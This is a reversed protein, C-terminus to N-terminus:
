AFVGHLYWASSQTQRERFVWLAGATESLAVWYDRAVQRTREGEPTSVRDWWGYEVRHPGIILQLVGQYVPQSGRVSLKLPEPLVFCPQPLEAGEASAARLPQEAPQWQTMWELRHDAQLTPRLVRQPGLRAAIREMVLGLPENQRASDLLLSASQEPLTQVELAELWIEDVPESLQVHALHEALLRILHEIQRTPQATRLILENVAAEDRVRGAERKWSLRYATVGQQLTALWACMSLLLRRAGFLLASASEVRAMLELKAAFTEPVSHWAHAEPQLGYAQDIALLLGRDFRHRLGGRPLARLQGLTTCGLRALTAHHPRTAGLAHLPLADLQEPLPRQVWEELAIGPCKRGIRALALAALSNSSWAVSQVGLQSSEEHVRDQLAAHGGFLRVSQSLEMVVASDIIAVRPTFQLGWTALLHLAETPPPLAGTSDPPTLCLAIWM